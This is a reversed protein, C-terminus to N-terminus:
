RNTSLYLGYGVVNAAAIMKTGDASTDVCSYFIDALGPNNVSNLISWSNSTTNYLFLGTLSMDTYIIIGTTSIAMGRVDVGVFSDYSSLQNYMKANILNNYLVSNVRAVGDCVVWGSPDTTGFYQVITGVQLINSVGDINYSM